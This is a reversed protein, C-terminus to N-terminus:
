KLTIFDEDMELVTRNFSISGGEWGVSPTVTITEHGYKCTVEIDSLGQDSSYLDVYAYGNMRCPEMDIIFACGSNAEKQTIYFKESKNYASQTYNYFAEAYSTDENSALEKGWGFAFADKFNVSPAMDWSWTGKVRANTTGSTINGTKTYSIKSLTVVCNAGITRTINKLTDQDSITRSAKILDIDGSSYGMAGLELANKRSLEKLNQIPNFSRLEAIEETSYGVALLEEDSQDVIDYYMDMENVITRSMEDENEGAWANINTGFIVATILIFCFVKRM